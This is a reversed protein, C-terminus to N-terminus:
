LAALAAGAAREVDEACAATYLPGSANTLLCQAQAVGHPSVARDSRLEAALALLAAQAALVEVRRLPACSSLTLPPEEAADLVRELGVALGVRFRTSIIQDARCELATSTRPDVDSTLQRDLLSRLRRARVRARFSMRAARTHVEASRHVVGGIATM